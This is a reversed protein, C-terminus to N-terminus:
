REDGSGRLKNRTARSRLKDINMQAVEALSSGLVRAMKNLYWMTDGIEKLILERRKPTVVSFLGDDRISKKIHDSIEGCEGNAGLALYFLSNSHPFTIDTASAAQDYHYFTEIKNGTKSNMQTLTDCSM